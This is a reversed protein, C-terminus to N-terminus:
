AMLRGLDGGSIAAKKLRQKGRIIEGTTGNVSIQPGVALPRFCLLLPTFTASPKLSFPLPRDPTRCRWKVNALPPSVDPASMSHYSTGALWGAGPGFPCLTRLADLRLAARKGAQGGSVWDGERLRQASGGEEGWTVVQAASSPVAAPRAPRAAPGKGTLLHLLDSARTNMYVALHVCFCLNKLCANGGM